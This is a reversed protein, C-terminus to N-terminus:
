PCWNRCPPPRAFLRQHVGDPNQARPKLMEFIHWFNWLMGVPKGDQINSYFNEM